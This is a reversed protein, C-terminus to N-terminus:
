GELLRRLAALSFPKQLLGAIPLHGHQRVIEDAGYGSMLVVPTSPHREAITRVVADGGMMPMSLDLLVYALDAIGSALLALGQEGSEAEHVTYGLRELMRRAVTRVSADDDIILVVGQLPKAPEHSM